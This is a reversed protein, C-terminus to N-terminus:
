MHYTEGDRNFPQPKVFCKGRIQTSVTTSLMRHTGVVKKGLRSIQSTMSCVTSYRKKPKIKRQVEVKNLLRDETRSNKM